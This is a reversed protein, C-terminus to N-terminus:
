AQEGMDRIFRAVGNIDDLTDTFLGIRLQEAPRDAPYGTLRRLLHRERNQHFFSFYYPLLVFQQALVASIGDFLGSFRGDAIARDLPAAISDATDPSVSSVFRFMEDHEGLPPLGGTLAAKLAEQQPLHKRASELFADRLITATGGQPTRPWFPAILSRG